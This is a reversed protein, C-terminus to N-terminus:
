HRTPSADRKQAARAKLAFHALRYHPVQARQVLEPVLAAALQQDRVYSNLFGYVVAQAQKRGGRKWPPLSLATSAFINLFEALGHHRLLRELEVAGANRIWHIVPNAQGFDFTKPEDLLPLLQQALQETCTSDYLGVDLAVRVALLWRRVLGPNSQYISNLRAAGHHLQNLYFERCLGANLNECNVVKLREM